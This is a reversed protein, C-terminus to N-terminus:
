NDLKEFNCNIVIEKLEEENTFMHVLSSLLEVNENLCYRLYILNQIDGEDYDAIGHLQLVRYESMFEANSLQLKNKLTHMLITIRESFSYNEINGITMFKFLFERTRNSLKKTILEYFKTLKEFSEDKEEDTIELFKFLKEGNKPPLDITKEARKLLSEPPAFYEILSSLEEQIFVELKKLKSVPVKEIAELIDDMDWIDTQKSFSVKGQTNFNKSYNKKETIILIVLRDYDSYLTKEVFKDITSQIKNSTNEATVQICVRATSDGLDIAAHNLTITNLDILNWDHTINLVEKFFNEALKNLDYFGRKSRSKFIYRLVSLAM